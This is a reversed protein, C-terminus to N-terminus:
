LDAALYMSFRRPANYVYAGGGIVSWGYRDFINSLQARLTMPKGFAAFRYRGGIHVVARSPVQVTNQTNAMQRSVSEFAADVSFGTAGIDYNASGAAHNRFASVPTAGISGINVLPGSVKADLFRSGAVLTLHEIPTGVVSIEVGRHRVDGLERFLGTADLDFYPKKVDFVGVVLKASESLTYRVGADYQSTMLAPAAVNRNV